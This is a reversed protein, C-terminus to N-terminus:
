DRHSPLALSPPIAGGRGTRAPAYSPLVGPSGLFPNPSPQRPCVGAADQSAVAPWMAALFEDTDVYKLELVLQDQAARAHGRLGGGTENGWRFFLARDEGHDCRPCYGQPEELPRM